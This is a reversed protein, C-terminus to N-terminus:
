SSMGLPIRGNRRFRDKLLDCNVCVDRYARCCQKVQETWYSMKSEWHKPNTYRDNPFANFMFNMRDNDEWDRLTFSNKATTSESVEM